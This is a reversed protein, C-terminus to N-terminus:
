PHPTVPQDDALIDSLLQTACAFDAMDM